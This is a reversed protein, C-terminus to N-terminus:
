EEMEEGRKGIHENQGGRRTEEDGMGRKMAMVFSRGFTVHAFVPM